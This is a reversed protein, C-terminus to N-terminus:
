LAFPEKMAREMAEKQRAKDMEVLFLITEWLAQERDMMLHAANNLCRHLAGHNLYAEMAREPAHSFYTELLEKPNM